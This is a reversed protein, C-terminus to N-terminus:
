VTLPITNRADLFSVYETKVVQPWPQPGPRSVACGQRLCFLSKFEECNFSFLKWPTEFGPDAGSIVVIIQDFLNM